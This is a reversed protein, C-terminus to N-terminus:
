PASRASSWSSPSCPGIEYVFAVATGTLAARATGELVASRAWAAALVGRPGHGVPDHACRGRGHWRVCSCRCPSFLTTVIAWVPPLDARARWPSRDHPEQRGGATRRLDADPESLRMAALAVANFLLVWAERELYGALDSPACGFPREPDEWLEYRVGSVLLGVTGPV